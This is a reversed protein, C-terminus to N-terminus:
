SGSYLFMSCIINRKKASSSMIVSADPVDSASTQPFEQLAADASYALSLTLM